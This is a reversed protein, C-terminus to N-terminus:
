EPFARDDLADLEQTDAATSPESVSDRTQAAGPRRGLIWDAARQGAGGASIILRKDSKLAGLWGSLYSAQNALTAPEIRAEGCLFAAAMEAVLEERSYDPSGFAPLKKDLGRDLRSSHGTSHALEHFMTAYFQETSAFRTPEPLKVTDTTPAYFAKNGGTGVKPGDMYGTAISEAMEIPKFESPTFKPTDPVEVGECQNANFVNYYRLVSIPKKESTEKDIIEHPKWFIVMSSKEGRKIRGGRQNAQQYTMWYSSDYGQTWATFALLFVNVGRYPKGTTLNKPHGVAQQGLIPSRWPAVGAELM